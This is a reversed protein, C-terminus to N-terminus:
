LSLFPLATKLVAVAIIYALILLSGSFALARLTRTSGTKLAVRGLLIYIIVALLKALLWPQRYFAGYLAIALTLGTVFLFTDIVHPLIRLWKRGLWASGTLMLVGRSTFSLVTLAACAVHAKRILLLSM